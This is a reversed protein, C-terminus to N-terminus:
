RATDLGLTRRAHDVVGSIPVLERQDSSRLKAEVRSQKLNRTSFTLRLPCGILDADNFKVGASLDPRDDYLVEIGAERLMDYLSDAQVVQERQRVL